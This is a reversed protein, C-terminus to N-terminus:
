QVSCCIHSASLASALSHLPASRQCRLGGTIRNVTLRHGGGVGGRGGRGVGGIGSWKAVCALEGYLNRLFTWLLLPPQRRQSISPAAARSIHCLLAPFLLAGRQRMLRSRSQCCPFERGWVAAAVSCPRAASLTARSFSDRTFTWHSPAPPM